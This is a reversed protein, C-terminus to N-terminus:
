MEKPFRIKLQDDILRIAANYDNPLTTAKKEIIKKKLNNLSEENRRTIYNHNFALALFAKMVKLQNPHHESAMRIIEPSPGDETGSGVGPTAATLKLRPAAMNIPSSSSTQVSNRNADRDM